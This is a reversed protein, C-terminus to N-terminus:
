YTTPEVKTQKISQIASEIQESTFGLNKRLKDLTVERQDRPLQDFLAIIRDQIEADALRVDGETTADPTM